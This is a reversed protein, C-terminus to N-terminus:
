RWEAHLLKRRLGAHGVQHLLRSHGPDLQFLADAPLVVEDALSSSSADEDSIVPLADPKNAAAADPIGASQQSPTEDSLEDMQLGFHSRIPNISSIM